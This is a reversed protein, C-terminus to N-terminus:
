RVLLLTGPYLAVAADYTVFTEHEAVNRYEAMIWDASRCAAAIRAEDLTGDLPRAPNGGQTTGLSIGQADPELTYDGESASGFVGNVYMRLTVGDGTAVVHQWANLTAAAGTGELTRPGGSDYIVYNVLGGGNDLWVLFQTGFRGFISQDANSDPNVWASLTFRDDHDRDIRDWRAGGGINVHAGGSVDIGNGAIGALRVPGNMDVGHNANATSDDADAHLHYVGLFEEGWTLATDAASPMGTEANGWYAWIVTNSGSLEPLKVWVCSTGTRNWTEIEHSLMMAVDGDTFRLDGGTESAFQGYAFGPMGPEFTVLAPFNTLTEAGRYESFTIKMRYAWAKMVEDVDDDRISGVARTSSLMCDVPTDLLLQFSEIGNEHAEDAILQVDISGGTEGVPITLTGNTAVYDAGATATGDVTTFDFSVPTASPASLTVPFQAVAFGGDGEWAEFGSIAATAVATTFVRATDAWDEGASNTAYWRNYYVGNAALGSADAAVSAPALINTVAVSATWSGADEGGDILGYYAALDAKGGAALTGNLTVTSDTVNEAPENSVVPAGLPQFSFSPRAVMNTAANIGVFTGYWTGQALGGLTAVLAAPGVNTYSGVLNTNAWSGVDVGADTVGWVMAVDFVSEPAQLTGDLTVSGAAVGSVTGNTVGIGPPAATVFPETADAWRAGHSNTAYCRYYYPVGYLLRRPAPVTGTLGDFMVTTLQTNDHSSVVLGLSCAEELGVQVNGGIQNWASAVGNSDEAWYGSFHDGGRKLRVWYYENTANGPGESAPNAGVTSRRSFRIVHSGNTPTRFVSVHRGGGDFSERLMIGAKRNDHNGGVFSGVRCFVDFDGYVPRSAYHFGDPSEWIDRGSGTVQWGGNTQVASGALGFTGVDRGTFDTGWQINTVDARTDAAFAGAISNTWTRATAWALANTGGDSDGWYLTAHTPAGNTLVTGNLFAYGIEPTAGLNDVIPPGPTVFRSSAPAWTEGHANVARFRCYYITGPILGTVNTAFHGEAAAGPFTDVHAWQGVNTGGDEPGWCLSVTTVATGTSVLVGNLTATTEMVADAPLTHVSPLDPDRGPEEVFGYTGFLSNSASTMFSAQIWDASRTVRSYRVEDLIGNVARDLLTGSGVLHTANLWVSTTTASNVQDGNVFVEVRDAADDYTFTLFHWAGDALPGTGTVWSQLLRVDLSDTNHHRLGWDHSGTGFVTGHNGGGRSRKYYWFGATANALGAFDAPNGLDILSRSRYDQGRGVRAAALTAESVGTTCSNDAPVIASDVPFGDAEKMHWVGVYGSDWVAGNTTYAPATTQGPNGWYAHIATANTFVPVRVWLFSTGGPHWEDVEYALEIAEGADSFRLDGGEPSSFDGYYLGPVDPSLEVLIPFNTLPTAGAYNTHTITLKRDWGDFLGAHLQLALSLASVVVLAARCWTRMRFCGRDQM